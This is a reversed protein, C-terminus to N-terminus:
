RLPDFISKIHKETIKASTLEHAVEIDNLKSDAEALVQMREAKKDNELDEQEQDHIKSVEKIRKNVLSKVKSKFSQNFM